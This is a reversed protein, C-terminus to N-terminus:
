ISLFLAKYVIILITNPNIGLANALLKKRDEPWLAPPLLTNLQVINGSGDNNMVMNMKTAKVLDPNIDFGFFNESAIVSIEDNFTQSVREPWDDKPGYDREMEKTLKTIVANMATVVFGGTGCSSDLVKEGKQPNIMDVAMHMVNRPTFFEGRDGRLNSGVIEEYAKGKFDINTNLLSYKQLEGVIQAVTRPELKISDNADFIKSNRRKVEEFIKAIRNYVTIQGDPFNRETSTTYFEIPNFVNREDQIKCFIIKM